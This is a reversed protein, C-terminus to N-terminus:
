QAVQICEMNECVLNKKLICNLMLTQSKWMTEEWPTGASIIQPNRM